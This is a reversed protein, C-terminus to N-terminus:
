EERDLAIREGMGFAEQRLVRGDSVRVWTKARVDGGRYEIVWCPVDEEGRRLPQPEPGVEAILPERKKEPLRFGYEGAKEQFLATVAEGLPDIEQVLWRQGPRLGAIRNLPQLPNLAQGGPVPVPDLDRNVRVLPSDIDCRGVLKGDEVRGEMKARADAVTAFQGDKVAMQVLLRGDMSQERLDGSRTVRTTSTLDPVLIRAGSFGGFEFQVQTYRHTFRFTDDADVHTMRTTLRGVKQDGRLIDWRVPIHQSAEDALDVTFPPHESATLRPWLDRYIAFGATALWFVLILAVVRRSPMGCGCISFRFSTAIPLGMM